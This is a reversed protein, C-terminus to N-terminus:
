QKLTELMKKARSLNNAIDMATLADEGLELQAIDGALGHLYVGYCAAQYPTLRKLLAGILGSLVDGSGGTAMGPNGTTNIFTELEASCVVTKHGKIVVTAGTKKALEKACELTNQSIDEISRKLLRSAEGVHPTLVVKDGLHPLIDMMAIANLADADLVINGQLRKLIKMVIKKAYPIGLGPGIVVADKDACFNIIQNVSNIRPLACDMAEPPSIAKYNRCWTVLGAGGKLAGLTALYGAGSYKKSGAIIAVSGMDGKHVDTRRELLLNAIMKGQDMDKIKVCPELSEIFVVAVAAGGDHSISVHTAFREYPILKRAAGLLNIIPAGNDDYLVEVCNLPCRSIGAKLAKAAAEKAAFRGAIWQAKNTQKHFLAQEKETFIRKIATQKEVFTEVRSIEVIDTGIGIIM